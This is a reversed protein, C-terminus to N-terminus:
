QADLIKNILYRFGVIESATIVANITTGLIGHINLNQGTLYLGKVKTAPLIISRAPNECDKLIGYASGEKTATHDKFTLPTSIYYRAIKQRIGPFREEVLDLLRNSMKEKYEQYDEGRQDPPLNEWRRFDEYPIFSLISVTKTFEGQGSVAPTYLLFTDPWTTIDVQDNFYDDSRYHFYNYNLYPFTKDKMILYLTFFGPTNELKSIRAVFAKRLKDTDIMKLTVAPHVDSIVKDGRIIEGNCLEVHNVANDEIGIKKVESDTFVEGGQIRINEILLGAIQDSSDVPRWASNIYSNRICAHLYLPTRNVASHYMSNAGALVHHLRPLDSLSRIFGMACQNLVGPDLIYDSAHKLNYLPITRITQQLKDTYDKIGPHQSPFLSNLTEVFRDYGQAHKYNTPDNGFSIVDYGDEDLKRLRLKDAIGFYNFFTYLTQGPSMSGIYHLGTDFVHGDRTFTQLNGGPQHNKELICVRFGERSLIYGCVLGGLGSGIIIVDYKTKKEPM